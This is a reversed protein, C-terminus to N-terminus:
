MLCAHDELGECVLERDLSRVGVRLLLEMVILVCGALLLAVQPMQTEVQLETAAGYIDFSSGVPLGQTIKGLSGCQWDWSLSHFSTLPSASVHM